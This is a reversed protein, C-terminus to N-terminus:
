PAPRVYLPVAGTPHITGRLWRVWPSGDVEVRNFNTITQGRDDKLPQNQQYGHTDGHVLMVPQKLRQALARLANRFGAFGDQKGPRIMREEFDPNAQILIVLGALQKQTTIVAAQELWDFVAPMRQRYEEDMARTRGLNNNGGPVNLTIFMVNGAVWRMHERYHAFPNSGSPDSQRELKIKRQGLSEDGSEFLERFHALREMPDMGSRHCDMWDNDGPVLIFPHRIRGFQYKRALFWEDSCPGAGSTIDGVHVVFALEQANIDDIMEDLARIERTSYPVDGMLGFPIGAGTPPPALSACGALALALIATLRTLVKARTNANQDASHDDSHNANTCPM